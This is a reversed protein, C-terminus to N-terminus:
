LHLHRALVRFCQVAPQVHYGHWSEASGASHGVHSSMSSSAPRVADQHVGLTAFGVMIGVLIALPLLLLSPGSREHPEPPQGESPTATAM